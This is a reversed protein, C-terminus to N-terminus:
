WNRRQNPDVVGEETSPAPGPLFLPEPFRRETIIGETSDVVTRMV